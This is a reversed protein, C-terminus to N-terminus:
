PQRFRAAMDARVKPPLKGVVDIFLDILINVQGIRQERADLMAARLAPIDLEPQALLELTRARARIFAERQEGIRAQKDRYADRIITAEAAPMRRAVLEVIQAPTIDALPRWRPMMWQSAFYGALALNLAVSAFLAARTFALDKFSLKM